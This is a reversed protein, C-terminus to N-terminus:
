AHMRCGPPIARSVCWSNFDRRSSSSPRAARCTAHAESRSLSRGSRGPPRCRTASSPSRRSTTRSGVDRNAFRVHDVAEASRVGRRREAVGRELAPWRHSRAARTSRNHVVAARREVRRDPRPRRPGDAALRARRVQPASAPHESLEEVSLGLDDVVVALTRQVSERKVPPPPVIAAEARSAGPVPAAEHPESVLVPMFQAFTVTQRKGDQRVEFDDSTLDTVIRGDRDTVVADIRVADIGVRFRPAERREQAAVQFPGPLIADTSCLLGVGIAIAYTATRTM